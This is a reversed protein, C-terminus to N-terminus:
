AARPKQPPRTPDIFGFFQSRTIDLARCLLKFTEMRPEHEGNEWQVVTVGTVECRRGLEAKTIGSLTRFYKIRDAVPLEKTEAM